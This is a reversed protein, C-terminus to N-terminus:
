RRLFRVSDLLEVDSHSRRNDVGSSCLKTNSLASNPRMRVLQLQHSRAFHPSTVAHRIPGSFGSFRCDRLIVAIDASARVGVCTVAAAAVSSAPTYKNVSGTSRDADHFRCRSVFAAAWASDARARSASWASAEAAAEEFTPFVTSSFVVPFESVSGVFEIGTSASFTCDDIMVPVNVPNSGLSMKSSTTVASAAVDALSGNGIRCVAALLPQQQQPVQAMPTPRTGPRLREILCMWKCRVACASGGVFKNHRVDLTCTWAAPLLLSHPPETSRQMARSAMVHDVAVGCDSFSCHSVNLRVTGLARTGCPLQLFNCHTLAISCMVHQTHQFPLCLAHVAHTFVCADAAPHIHTATCDKTDNSIVMANVTWAGAGMHFVAAHVSCAARREVSAAGSVALWPLTAEVRTRNLHGRVGLTATKAGSCSWVPLVLRLLTSGSDRVHSGDVALIGVTSNRLLCSHM